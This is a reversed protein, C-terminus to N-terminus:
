CRVCFLPFRRRHCGDGAGQGGGKVVEVGRSRPAPARFGSGPVAAPLNAPPTGVLESGSSMDAAPPPPASDFMTGVTLPWGIVKSEKARLGNETPYGLELQESIPIRTRATTPHFAPCRDDWRWPWIYVEADEDREGDLEEGDKAIGVRSNEVV